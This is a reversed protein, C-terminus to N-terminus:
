TDDSGRRWRRATRAKRAPPDALDAVPFVGGEAGAPDMAYRYLAVSFLERTVATLGSTLAFVAAGIGILVAGATSGALVGVVVLVAAAGYPIAAWVAISVTGGLAEGWRERV